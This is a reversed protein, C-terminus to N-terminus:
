QPRAPIKSLRYGGGERIIQMGALKPRMRSVHMSILNSAGFRRSLAMELIEHDKHIEGDSLVTFIQREAETLDAPPQFKPHHEDDASITNAMAFHIEEPDYIPFEFIMANARDLREQMQENTEGHNIQEAQQEEEPSLSPPDPDFWFSDPM